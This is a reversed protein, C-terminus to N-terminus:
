DLALERYRGVEFDNGSERLAVPSLLRHKGDCFCELNARLNFGGIPLMIHLEGGEANGVEDRLWIGPLADLGAYGTGRERLEVSIARRALTQIGVSAQGDVGVSCRRIAGVVWNDGGEPQMCLLSGIASWDGLEAMGARFGGQSVNEVVWNLASREAGLRAVNGAFVALCSDFGHLVALRTKVAHRAHERQPPVPAWYFALHRLVKLLASASVEGGLDIDQPSEGREVRQMLEELAAYAKGPQMFYLAPSAQEPMRVLRTPPLGAAADVWHVSGSLCERAFVFSPAFYAVLRDALEIEMPLLAGMSSAARVMAQVYLQIVSTAASQGPYLSVTKQAFGGSEAYLFVAGLGRWLDEGVTGYHFEVSKCQASRAALLRASALPLLPKFADSGKDVPGRRYRELCHAYLGALEGCYNFHLAWLRREDNRSLKPSRLYSRALQRLHPQAAEDLQSVVAYFQDLRFDDAHRLSEFWVLIEDIAKFSERPLGALVRRLEKADGLPHEPRQTFFNLM